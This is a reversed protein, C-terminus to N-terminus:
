SQEECVKFYHEKNRFMYPLSLVKYEPVIGEMVAASVKTIGIVGIQLLELCERETGLQQSPYISIKLKGESKEYVRDAMFVM